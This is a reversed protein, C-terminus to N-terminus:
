WAIVDGGEGEIGIEREKELTTVYVGSELESGFTTPEMIQRISGEGGDEGYASGGAFTYLIYRWDSM